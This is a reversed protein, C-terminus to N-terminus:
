ASVASAPNVACGGLRWRPEATPSRFPSPLNSTTTVARAAGASTHSFSLGPALWQISNANSPELLLRSPIPALILTADPPTVCYLWTEKAAPYAEALAPGVWKPKPVLLVTSRTSIRQGEPIVCASRFTVASRMRLTWSGSCYGAVRGRDVGSPNLVSHQVGCLVHEPQYQSQLVEYKRTKRISAHLLHGRSWDRSFLSRDLAM